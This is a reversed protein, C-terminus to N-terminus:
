PDSTKQKPKKTKFLNRYISNKPGKGRALVVYFNSQFLLFIMLMVFIKILLSFQGQGSESIWKLLSFSTIHCRYPSTLDESFYNSKKLMFNINIIKTNGNPRLYTSGELLTADNWVWILVLTAKYYPRWRIVGAAWFSWSWVTYDFRFVYPVLMSVFLLSFM